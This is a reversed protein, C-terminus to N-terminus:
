EASAAPRDNNSLSIDCNFPFIIFDDNQSFCDDRLSFQRTHQYRICMYRSWYWGGAKTQVRSNSFSLGQRPYVLHPFEIGTQEIKIM